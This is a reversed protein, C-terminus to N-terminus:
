TAHIEDTKCVFMMYINLSKGRHCWMDIEDAQPVEQAGSTQLQHM